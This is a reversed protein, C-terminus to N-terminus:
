KVESVPTPHCSVLTTFVSPTGYGVFSQFGGRFYMGYFVTEKKEGTDEKYFFLGKKTFSFQIRWCFQSDSSVCLLNSVIDDFFFLLTGKNVM